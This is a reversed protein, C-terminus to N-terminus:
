MGGMLDIDHLLGEAQARRSFDLASSAFAKRVEKGDNSKLFNLIVLCEDFYEWFNDGRLYFIFSNIIRDNFVVWIRLSVKLCAASLEPFPAKVIANECLDFIEKDFEHSYAFNYIKTSLIGKDKENLIGIKDLEKRSNM